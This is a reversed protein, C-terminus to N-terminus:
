TELNTCLLSLANQKLKGDLAEQITARIAIAVMDMDAVSFGGAKKKATSSALKGWKSRAASTVSGGSGSASASQASVNALGGQGIAYDWATKGDRDVARPDAGSKLLLRVSELKRALAALHLPTRKKIDVTNVNAGRNILLRM